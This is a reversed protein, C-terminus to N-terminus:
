GSEDGGERRESREPKEEEKKHDKHDKHDKDKKSKPEKKTKSTEKKSDSKHSKDQSAMSNRTEVVKSLLILLTEYSKTYLNYLPQVITTSQEGGNSKRSAATRPAKPVQWAGKSTAISAETHLNRLARLDLVDYSASLRLISLSLREPHQFTQAKGNQNKRISRSAQQNQQLMLLM